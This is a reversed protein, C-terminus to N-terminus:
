MALTRAGRVTTDTLGTPPQWFLAQGVRAWVDYWRPIEGPGPEWGHELREAVERIEPATQQGFPLVVVYPHRSLLGFLRPPQRGTILWYLRSVPAVFIVFPAVAAGIAATVGVRVEPRVRSCRQWERLGIAFAYRLLLPRLRV